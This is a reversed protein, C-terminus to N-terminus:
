ERLYQPLISIGCQAAQFHIRSIHLGNNRSRQHRHSSLRGGDRHFVNARNVRAVSNSLTSIESPIDGVCRTCCRADLFYAWSLLDPTLNIIPQLQLLSLLPSFTQFCRGSYWKVVQPRPWAMLMHLSSLCREFYYAPTKAMIIAYLGWISQSQVHILCIM